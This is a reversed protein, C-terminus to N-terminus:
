KDLYKVERMKLRFELGDFFIKSVQEDINELLFNNITIYEMVFRDGDNFLDCRQRWDSDLISIRGESEENANTEDVLPGAIVAM